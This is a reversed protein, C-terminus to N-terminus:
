SGFSCDAYMVGGSDMLRYGINHYGQGKFADFANTLGSNDQPAVVVEWHILNGDTSHGAGCPPVQFGQSTTWASPSTASALLATAVLCAAVALWPAVRRWAARPATRPTREDQSTEGGHGAGQPRPVTM